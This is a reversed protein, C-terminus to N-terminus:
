DCGVFLVGNVRTGDCCNNPYQHLAVAETLPRSPQGWSDTLARSPDKSGCLWRGCTLTLGVMGKDIGGGDEEGHGGLTIVM